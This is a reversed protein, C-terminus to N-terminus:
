GQEATCWGEAHAESCGRLTIWGFNRLEAESLSALLADEQGPVDLLLVNPPQDEHTDDHALDLQGLLEGFALAHLPLASAQRLRPYFRGLTSADLPGNLMRLNYRHWLLPGAAPAVPQGVIDVARSLRSAGSRLDSVIDPDGEVLVLRNAVLAEHQELAASGAGIHVVTGLPRSPIRTLAEILADM